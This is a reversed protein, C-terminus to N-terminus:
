THFIHITLDQQNTLFIGTQNGAFSNEKHKGCVQSPNRSWFAFKLNSLIEEGDLWSKFHAFRLVLYRMTITFDALYLEKSHAATDTM